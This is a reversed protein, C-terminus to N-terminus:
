PANVVFDVNEHILDQAVRILTEDDPLARGVDAFRKMLNTADNKATGGNRWMAEWASVITEVFSDGITRINAFKGLVVVVKGDALLMNVAAVKHKESYLPFVLDTAVQSHQTIRDRVVWAEDAELHGTRGKSVDTVTEDAGAVLWRPLKLRQSLPGLEGPSNSLLAANKLADKDPTWRSLGAKEADSLLENDTFVWFRRPIAGLKAVAAGPDLYVNDHIVKQLAAAVNKAAFGLDATHQGVIAPGSKGVVLANKRPIIDVANAAESLRGLTGEHAKKTVKTGEDALTKLVWDVIANADERGLSRLLEKGLVNQPGLTAAWAATTVSAEIEAKAVQLDDRVTGAGDLWAFGGKPTAVIVGTRTTLMLAEVTNDTVSASTFIARLAVGGAAFTTSGVREYITPATHSLRPVSPTGPVETGSLLADMLAIAHDREAVDELASTSSNAAGSAVSAASSLAM